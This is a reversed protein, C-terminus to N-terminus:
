YAECFLFTKLKKKFVSLTPANRVESPLANWFIPALYSFSRQGFSKLNRKPVKLLKESASRLTRSPQYTTLSASLYTPLTGLFYRYAFVLIKYQCRYKVPLWHLHQLFPTIHERRGKKLVLRAASNQVRQLRGLQEAPLGILVSNCFDLRSTILANVLKACSTQTLFPRISAIRRLELFCTRCISGIQEQMSLTQDIRVGLYKVSNLFQLSNGDISISHSDIQSIRSPTGVPMVETKGTNLMLKNSTMWLLVDSMCSQLATEAVNFNEVSSSKSLQTDDAYKHFDCAHAMIVDSLPQTYLTFLVPGLVSGQPVGFVLPSAASAAGEILVSQFRHHVYSAFWQFVTGRIGFTVELRKLLISHDLTDFAASLDLLAMLSVLREDAKVLLGDLVSLVATEVSHNSKYASQHVELLNNGSLHEQLQRLVVKELIKSIFPLNSVPRYNSLVNIDLGTKKLLPTIVARKFQPPVVGTSLSENVIATILPVLDSLCQKTLSTPIPDLSCSKTPSQMILDHIDKESVLLFQSFGPGDYEVFTPPDCQQSDLDDRLKQIKESFYECFRQPLESRPINSPFSKMKPKGLLENTVAFLQKSSSETCNIRDNYFTRRGEQVCMRVTDRETIFIERHVTLHTKRWRREARRRRRRAMRIDTTLWPASPRDRVRRTVSPAHRDLIQQLGSNYAEVLGNADLDHCCNMSGALTEVDRQFEGIDIAKLNRSTVLRSPPPPRIFSLSCVLLFHDSLGPYDRVENLLLLDSGSRVVVWDLTHGHRHTPENVLQTFGHDSMMVKLQNVQSDSIDDFHFNFDGTLAVDCKTDVYASLLEPFERLFTSNLLKNRKSPPPRYICVVIYTSQGISLKMEVCEFSAFDLPRFSASASLSNRVVFAIGSGRSSVRPFSYCVYGAPTLHAIYSEDGQAYLWTETLALVDADNDTIIDHIDTVKKRCSQTNYCLLKLGNQKCKKSRRKYRKRPLGVGIELERLRYTLEISLRAPRATLLEARNYHSLVPAIREGKVPQQTHLTVHQVCTTGSTPVCLPRSACNLVTPRTSFLVCLLLFRLPPPAYFVLWIFTEWM